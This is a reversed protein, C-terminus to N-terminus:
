SACWSMRLFSRQGRSTKLTVSATVLFRHSVCVCSAETMLNLMALVPLCVASGCSLAAACPSLSLLEQVSLLLSIVACEHGPVQTM